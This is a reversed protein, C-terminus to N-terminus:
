GDFVVAPTGMAGGTTIHMYPLNPPMSVPNSKGILIVTSGGPVSSLVTVTLATAPHAVNEARTMAVGPVYVSM